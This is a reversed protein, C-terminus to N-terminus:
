RVLEGRLVLVRKPAQVGLRVRDGAEDSPFVFLRAEPGCGISTEHRVRVRRGDVELIAGARDVSFVSVRRRAPGEGVVLCEGTRRTLILV